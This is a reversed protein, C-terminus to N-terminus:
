QSTLRKDIINGDKYVTSGNYITMAVKGTMQRKQFPTNHSRSYGKHADYTWTHNPDVITINAKKELCPMSLDLVQAPGCTLLKILHLRSIYNTAVLTEYCLSFATELGILGVAAEDMTGSKELSTHPAHDTAIADITGDRLGMLLAERDIDTRLPPRMKFNTDYTQIDDTTLVIHHPTV